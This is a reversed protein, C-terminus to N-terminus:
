FRITGDIQTTLNSLCIRRNNKVWYKAMKPGNSTLGWLATLSRMNNHWHTGHHPLILSHWGLRGRVTFIYDICQSIEPADLDGMFNVRDDFYCLSLCNAANRLKNNLKKLTSRQGPNLTPPMPKIEFASEKGRNTESQFGEYYIWIKDSNSIRRYLEKLEPISGIEKEFEVITEGIRLLVSKSFNRPPWSVDFRNGNIYISDGQSLPVLNFGSGNLQNMFSAFDYDMSGSYGGMSFAFVTELAYFLSIAEKQQPLRPVYVTRFNTQWAQKMVDILGSYHDKHFHSLAFDTRDYCNMEVYFTFLDTTSIKQQSGFDTILLHTGDFLEMFMGDGIDNLILNM